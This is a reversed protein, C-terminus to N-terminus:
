RDAKTDPTITFSCAPTTPQNNLDIGHRAAVAEREVKLANPDHQRKVRRTEIIIERAARANTVGREVKLAEIDQSRESFTEIQERTYGILEFSGKTGRTIQYDLQQVSRALETM